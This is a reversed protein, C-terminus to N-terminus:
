TGITVKRPINRLMLMYIPIRPHLRVCENQERLKLYSFVRKGEICLYVCKWSYPIDMREFKRGKEMIKKIKPEVLSHM